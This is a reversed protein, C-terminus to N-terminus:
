YIKALILNLLYFLIFSILHLTIYVSSIFNVDMSAFFRIFLFLISLVALVSILVKTKHQKYLIVDIYMDLPLHHQLIPSEIRSM